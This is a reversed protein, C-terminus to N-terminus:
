KWLWKRIKDRKIVLDAALPLLLLSWLVLLLLPRSRLLPIEVGWLILLWPLLVVSLLLLAPILQTFSRHNKGVKLSRLYLGLAILAQTILTAWCAGLMEMKPIMILNLLFNLVVGGGFILNIMGLDGHSLLYSGSIHYVSKAVFAFALLALAAGAAPGPDLYLGHMIDDSFILLLALIALAAIWALKLGFHYLDSPNEGRSLMKSFMPYLLGVFLFTFMAAADYLRFAAAYYGAQREGDELLYGIMVGDLRNYFFTSLLILAFPWSKKFVLIFYRLEPWKWMKSLRPRLMWLCSLTVVLFSAAQAIAFWIIEFRESLVPHLLLSGVLLIMVLKDTVSLLSDRRYWGLGAINSRLYGNLSDLFLNFAILGFLLPYLEVMGLFWGTLVTAVMFLLGLIFKISLIHPFYKGLLSENLSIFRNNFNQIGLDNVVQFLYVFGLLYFYLGYAVPGAANQVGVDIGFIYLPKIMLNILVLFTLNILFERKVGITIKRFSLNKQPLDPHRYKESHDNRLQWRFEAPIKSIDVRHLGNHGADMM